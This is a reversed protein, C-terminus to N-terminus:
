DLDDTLHSEESPHGNELDMADVETDDDLFFAEAEEEARQVQEKLEEAPTFISGLRASRSPDFIRDEEAAAAADDDDDELVTVMEADAGSSATSRMRMPTLPALRLPDGSSVLDIITGYHTGSTSLLAVAEHAPIAGVQRRGYVSPIVFGIALFPLLMAASTWGNDFSTLLVLTGVAFPLFLFAGVGLASYGIFPVAFPRPLDPRSVRLAYFAALELLGSAVSFFNDIIVMSKFDFMILMMVMSMSLLTANEPTGLTKNRGALWKPALGQEAMGCLQWADEWLVAAHMGFTGILSSLVVAVAAWYGAEQNAIASWWGVQWIEWPPVDRATAVMLPLATVLTVVVLASLLGKPYSTGPDKVEGACTSACDFGNFNWFAVHLLYVLDVDQKPRSQWLNSWVLPQTAVVYPLLVLFPLILLVVMIMMGNTVWETKGFLVPASFLVTLFLKAFYAHWWNEDQASGHTNLPETVSGKFMAQFTEYALVPYLANDVVCSGWSWFSEQFGWFGGFATDVWLVYGGNSPLASSLESTILCLPLGWLFAMVFLSIFGPYPGCASVIPESGWPGGSVNFFTLLALGMAGVSRTGAAPMEALPPTGRRHPQSGHSRGSMQSASRTHSKHLAKELTSM